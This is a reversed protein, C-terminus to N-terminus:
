IKERIRALWAGIGSYKWGCRHCTLVVDGELRRVYKQCNPCTGEENTTEFYDSKLQRYYRYDHGHNGHGYEIKYVFTNGHVIVEKGVINPNGHRTKSAKQRLWDPVNDTLQEWGM